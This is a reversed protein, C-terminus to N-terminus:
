KEAHTDKQPADAFRMLGAFGAGVILLDAGAELFDDCDIQDGEHDGGDAQHHDDDADHEALGRRAGVVWGLRGGELDRSGFGCSLAGREFRAWGGRERPGFVGRRARGRLFRLLHTKSPGRRKANAGTM